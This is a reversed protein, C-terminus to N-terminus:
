RKNRGDYGPHISDFRVTKHIFPQGCEKECRVLDIDEERIFYHATIGLSISLVNIDAISRMLHQHMQEADEQVKRSFLLTEEEIKRRRESILVTSISPITTTTHNLLASSQMTKPTCKSSTSAPAASGKERSIINRSSSRNINIAPASKPRM